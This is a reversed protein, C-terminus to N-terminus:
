LGPTSVFGPSTWKSKERDNFDSWGRCDVGARSTADPALALRITRCRAVYPFRSNGRSGVRDGGPCSPAIM